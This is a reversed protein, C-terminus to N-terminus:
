RQGRGTLTNDVDSAMERPLYLLLFLKSHLIEFSSPRIVFSSCCPGVEYNSIRREFNKM